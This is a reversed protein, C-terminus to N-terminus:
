NPANGRRGGGGGWLGEKYLLCPRTCGDCGDSTAEDGPEKLRDEHYSATKRGRCAGGGGVEVCM